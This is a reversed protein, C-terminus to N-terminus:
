HRYLRELTTLLAGVLMNALLVIGAEGTTGYKSAILSLGASAEYGALRQLVSWANLFEAQEAILYDVTLMVGLSLLSFLLFRYVTKKM